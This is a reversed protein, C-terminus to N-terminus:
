TTYVVLHHAGRHNTFDGVGLASAVEAQAFIPLPSLGLFDSGAGVAVAANLHEGGDAVLTASTLAGEGPNTTHVAVLVLDRALAGVVVLRAVVVDRAVHNARRTQTSFPYSAYVPLAAIVVGDDLGCLTRRFGAGERTRLAHRVLALDNLVGVGVVVDGAVVAHGGVGERNTRADLAVVSVSDLVRPSRRRFAVAAAGERPNPAHRRRPDERVAHAHLLVLSAHVVLQRGHQRHVLAVDAVATLDAGAVVAVAESRDVAAAEDPDLAHGLEVVDRRLESRVIIDLTHIAVRRNGRLRWVVVLALVLAKHQRRRAIVNQRVRQTREAVLNAHVLVPRSIVVGAGALVRRAVVGQHTNSRNRSPIM